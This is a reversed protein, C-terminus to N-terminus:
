EKKGCYERCKTSFLRIRELALCLCGTACSALKCHFRKGPLAPWGHSQCRHMIPKDTDIKIKLFPERFPGFIVGSHTSAPKAQSILAVWCAQSCGSLLEHLQPCLFNANKAKISFQRCESHKPLQLLVTICGERQVSRTNMCTFTDHRWLITTCPGYIM